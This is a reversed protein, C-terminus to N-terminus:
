ILTESSQFNQCYLPNLLDLPESPCPRSSVTPPRSSQFNVLELVCKHDIEYQDIM